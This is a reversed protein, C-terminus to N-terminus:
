PNSTEQCSSITYSWNYGFGSNEKQYEIFNSAQVAENEFQPSQVVTEPLVLFYIIGFLVTCKYPRM